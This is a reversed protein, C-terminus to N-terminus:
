RVVVVPCHAHATVYASVSGLLMGAFEGHGRSGVVVLAAGQSQEVLVEAPHGQAVVTSVSVAPNAGLTAPVFTALVQTAAGELDVNDPVAVWGASATLYWSMVVRLHAGTLEAQRAAWTLARRSNESGDVGVVVDGGAAPSPVPTHETSSM